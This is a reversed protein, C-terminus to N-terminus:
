GVSHPHGGSIPAQVPRHLSRSTLWSELRDGALYTVNEHEVHGQPFDGWIVVVANVWGRHGTKARLCASLEVAQRRLRPALSVHRYTDDPDDLQRSILAGNNFSITGALNKTELLFIGRPGRVIHDLNARGGLQIDHDIVWGNRQLSRLARETRREGEAGRRWKLVNQPPEDRVHSIVGLATAVVAGAAVSWGDLRHLLVVAWFFAFLPIVAILLPIRM